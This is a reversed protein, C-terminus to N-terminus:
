LSYDIMVEVVACSFKLFLEYIINKNVLQKPRKEINLYRYSISTYGYEM